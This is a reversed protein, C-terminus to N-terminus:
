TLAARCKRREGVRGVSRADPRRGCPVADLAIRVCRLENDSLRSRDTPVDILQSVRSRGRRMMRLILRRPIREGAANGHAPRVSRLPRDFWERDDGRPAYSRRSSAPELGADASVPCRRTSSVDVRRLAGGVFVFRRSERELPASHIDWM